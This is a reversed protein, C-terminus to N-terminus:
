DLKFAVPLALRQRCIRNFRKAPKWDPSSRIVKLAEDDILRHVGKKVKVEKLSGDKDVVFEITVSGKINKKRAEQPYRINKSLFQYFAVKGGEYEAEKNSEEPTNETGDENYYKETVIKGNDCKILAALKEETHHYRWTGDQKDNEYYGIDMLKNNKYFSTFLGHLIKREKDKYHTIRKILNSESDYEKEVYLIQQTLSDKKQSIVEYSYSKKKKKVIERDRNYYITDQAFITYLNFFFFFFLLLKKTNM